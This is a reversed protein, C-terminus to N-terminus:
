NLLLNLILSNLVAKGNQTAKIYGRDVLVLDDNILNTLNKENFKKGSLTQYRNKSIGSNL